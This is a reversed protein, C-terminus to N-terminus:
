IIIGRVANFIIYCIRYNNLRKFVKEIFFVAKIIFKKNATDVFRVFAM